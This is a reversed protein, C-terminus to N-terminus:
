ARVFLTVLPEDGLQRSCHGHVSPDFAAGPPLTDNSYFCQGPGFVRSSGDQLGIEMRGQLVVLWQPTTTCHFDSRFGVPSHRFQCGGSAQLASLRAAPTGDPLALRDDRFRARGDPGTYLTTLTLTTM